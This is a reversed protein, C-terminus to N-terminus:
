YEIIYRLGVGASDVFFRGSAGALRLRPTWDLSIQLPISEFSLDLGLAGMAGLGTFDRAFTIYPGVGWYWQVRGLDIDTHKELLVASGFFDYDFSGLMAELALSHSVFKKYSVTAGTGGRLGAAADYYQAKVSICSFVLAFIFTLTIYRRLGM